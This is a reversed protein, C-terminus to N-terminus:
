YIPKPLHQVIAPFVHEFITRVFETESGTSLPQVNISLDADYLPSVCLLQLTIPYFHMKYVQHQQIRAEQM